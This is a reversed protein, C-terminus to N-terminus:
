GPPADASSVPPPPADARADAATDPGADAPPAGPADGPAAEAAAAADRPTPAAPADTRPPGADAAAPRGGGGDLPPRGMMEGSGAVVCVGSGEMAGAPNECELGQECDSDIECRDGLGQKCGPGLVLALALPLLGARRPGRPRRRELM